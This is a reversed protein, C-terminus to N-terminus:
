LNQRCPALSTKIFLFILFLRPLILFEAAWPLAPGESFVFSHYHVPSSFASRCSRESVAGRCPTPHSHGHRPSRAVVSLGQGPLLHPAAADGGDEVVEHDGVEEPHECLAAVQMRSDDHGVRGLAQALPEEEEDSPTLTKPATPCPLSPSPSSTCSVHNDGKLQGSSAAEDELQCHWLIDTVGGGYRWQPGGTRALRCHGAWLGRDRGEFLAQRAERRQRLM